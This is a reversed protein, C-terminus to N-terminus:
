FFLNLLLIITVISLLTGAIILGNSVMFNILTKM